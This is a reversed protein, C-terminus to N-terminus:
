HIKKNRWKFLRHPNVFLASSVKIKSGEKLGLELWINAKVLCRTTQSLSFHWPMTVTHHHVMIHAEILIRYHKGALGNKAEIKRTSERHQSISQVKRVLIMVGDILIGSHAYNLLFNHALLPWQRQPFDLPQSTGRSSAWLAPVHKWRRGGKRRPEGLSDLKGLLFDLYIKSVHHTGFWTSFPFLISIWRRGAEGAEPCMATMCHGCCGSCTTCCVCTSSYVQDDVDGGGHISQGLNGEAYLLVVNVSPLAFVPMPLTPKRTPAMVLSIWWLLVNNWKIGSGELLGWKM